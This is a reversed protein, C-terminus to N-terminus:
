EEFSALCLIISHKMLHPLDNFALSVCAHSRFYFIAVWELFRALFNGHVASAPPSGIVPDCLILCLQAPMCVHLCSVYMSPLVM